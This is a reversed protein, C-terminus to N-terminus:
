CYVILYLVTTVTIHTKGVMFGLDNDSMGSQEISYCWDSALLPLLRNMMCNPLQSILDQMCGNILKIERCEM